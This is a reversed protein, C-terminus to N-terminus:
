GPIARSLWAGLPKTLGLPLRPWIRRATSWRPNSPSLDPPERGAPVYRQYGLTSPAFGQNEKFRYSGPNDKRSRGFDFRRLGQRVAREMVSLYLLNTAGTCRIREDVGVFYPYVTDRFVFSLLAAVPQNGRRVITIWADEGFRGALAEFFRYPYNISALRRMSRAYLAWVLPLQAPDHQVTLGERQRAQRAAARAKRPLYTELDDPNAPLERVFNVYRRDVEWDPLDPTTSRLELVRAGLHDALNRADGALSARAAEDDALIGGYVAYPVSLLIRGTLLNRVEFLPLVGVIRRGRLAILHRPRHPFATEVAACWDPLHFLTGAPARLVYDEWARHLPATVTTSVTPLSSPAVLLRDPTNSTTTITATIASM